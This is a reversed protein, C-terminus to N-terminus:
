VLGRPIVTKADPILVRNQSSNSSTITKQHFNLRPLNKAHSSPISLVQMPIQNKEERQSSSPNATDDSKERM